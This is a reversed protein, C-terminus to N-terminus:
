LLGIVDERLCREAAKETRYREQGGYKAREHPMNYADPNGRRFDSLPQGLLGLFSPTILKILLRPSAGL